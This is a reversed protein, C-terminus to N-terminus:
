RTVVRWFGSAFNSSYLVHHEADYGLEFGGARLLPSSATAWHEGDSEPSSFYPLYPADAQYPGNSAWMTTGDGALGILGSGIGPLLSWSAGDLSRLMGAPGALYFTGGAARYLQGGNHGGWTAGVLSWTAGGDSTRWIGNSQSGYLWRQRGGVFWVTQDEAGVWSPDGDVIRWSEGADETEALCAAPHPANCDAHFSILLHSHDSPDMVIKHVFNYQVVSALEPDSPPWFLSWDRGENTSRWVGNSESGYGTNVYLSGNVPDVVVSWHMGSGAAAGNEGSDLRTWSAGCDPTRWVGMEHTGLYLVGAHAPDLALGQTGYAFDSPRAALLDRVQPPTVDEWQGPPALNDCQEVTHGGDLVVAPVDSSSADGDLVDARLTDRADAALATGSDLTDGELAGTCAACSGVVLVVASLRARSSPDM